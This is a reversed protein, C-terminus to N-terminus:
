AMAVAGALRKQVAMVRAPDGLDTWDVGTVALVALVSTSPTLVARSFDVSPLAAYVAAAAAAEWPTGLRACLPAMADVLAPTARRLLGLLTSPYAVMVFSNWYCGRGHLREAVAREPKEWFRRVEYVPAAVAPVPDGPEIWGYEIEPRDAAIGLLVTLAPWAMVTEFAQEVSWAFARDDSVHHDSPVLAVPADPALTALRELAYAIAPATGRNQPQVVVLSRPVGAFVPAYHREHHGTVVTLTRAPAVLMGVRRYTQELLTEGGVLACFQKPREDGSLARTLSRLRTGDGGALVIASRGPPAM